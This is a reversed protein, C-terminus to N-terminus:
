QDQTVRSLCACRSRESAMMVARGAARAHPLGHRHTSGELKRRNTGNGAMREIMRMSRSSPLAGENADEHCGRLSRDSELDTQM